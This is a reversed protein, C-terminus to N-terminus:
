PFAWALSYGKTNDNVKQGCASCQVPQPSPGFEDPEITVPQQRIAPQEYGPNVPDKHFSPVNPILSLCTTYIHLNMAYHNHARIRYQKRLCPLFAKQFDRRRLIKPLREHSRSREFALISAPEDLWRLTGNSCFESLQSFAQSFQFEYLGVLSPTASKFRCTRDREFWM